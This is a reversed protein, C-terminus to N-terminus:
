GPVEPIIQLNAYNKPPVPVLLFLFVVVFVVVVDVFVMQLLLSKYFYHAWDNMQLDVTRLIRSALTHYIQVHIRM